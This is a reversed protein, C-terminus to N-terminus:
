PDRVPMPTGFSYARDQSFLPFAASGAAVTITSGQVPAAPAPYSLIDTGAGTDVPIGSGYFALVDGAQVATDVVDYTSMESVAPNALPPVTLTGSDFVVQYEGPNVTPRLIYANFVQGASPYPSGGALAQNWSLFDTLTGAPLAAPLVVLIPAPSGGPFDSAYARDQLANGVQTLVGLGGGGSFSVQPASYGGGAVDVTIGTVTGSTNVTASATADGNGGNITVNAFTYGNGPNTIEISTVTGDWGVSASATAGTGDGTIEVTANPTTLPSNAWNPYPGFYHPVKTGDTPNIPMANAQINGGFVLSALVVLSVIGNLFKRNNM